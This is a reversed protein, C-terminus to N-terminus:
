PATMALAADIDLLHHEGEHITHRALWAMSRDAPEPWNYIGVRSWEDPTLRDFAGALGDANVILDRAVDAPDQENYRLEIVREDRGMPVFQPRDEALALLLREHQVAFVDRVHCAYELASWTTPDPRTRLHAAELSLRNRYRPGLSRLLMGVDTVAVDAYVFGCSECADM